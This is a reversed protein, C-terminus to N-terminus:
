EGRYTDLESVATAASREDYAFYRGDNRLARYGFPLKMSQVIKAMGQSSYWDLLKPGKPSAHLWTRGGYSREYSLVVATDLCIRTLRKPVQESPCDLLRPLAEPPAATMFWVFVSDEGTEGPFPYKRVVAVFGVPVGRDGGVEASMTLVLPQQRLGGGVATVWRLLFPWNWHQDARETMGDIIPQVHEDWFNVDDTSTRLIRLNTKHGERSEAWRVFGNM